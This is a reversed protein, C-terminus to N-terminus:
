GPWRLASWRCTPPWVTRSFHPVDSTTGGIALIAFASLAIGAALLFATQAILAIIGAVIGAIAATVGAAMVRELLWKLIRNPKDPRGSSNM